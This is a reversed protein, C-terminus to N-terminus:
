RVSIGARWPMLVRELLRVVLDATLGLAAYILVVVMLVDVQQYVQASFLLYGLGSSSNIQEAALLALVSTGLAYRLGTFISPLAMPLLIEGVLRPGKLGFTRAAEVTRRDVNRVGNYTNLYMPFTTAAAILLIKPTEGIGLWVILLPVIALFPVTRLMQMSSDLLREGVKSLGAAAGLFLGITIGIAAGRASRGLSTRLHEFLDDAALDRFTNFVKGPSALVSPDIRGTASGAWWAVIALVPLLGRLVGAGAGLNKSRAPRPRVLHARGSPAVVRDLPRAATRDVTLLPREELHNSM